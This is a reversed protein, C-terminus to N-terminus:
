PKAEKLKGQLFQIIKEISEADKKCHILISERGSVTGVIDRTKNVPLYAVLTALFDTTIDEKEGVWVQKEKNQRGIYVRDTLMSYGIGNKTSM